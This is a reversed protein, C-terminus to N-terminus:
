NRIFKKGFYYSVASTEAASQPDCSKWRALRDTKRSLNM